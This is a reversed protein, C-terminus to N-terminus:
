LANDSTRAHYLQTLSDEKLINARSMLIKISRKPSFLHFKFKVYSNYLYGVGPAILNVCTINTM